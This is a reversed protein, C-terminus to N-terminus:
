LFNKQKKTKKKQNQIFEVILQNPNPNSIVRLIIRARNVKMRIININIECIILCSIKRSLM